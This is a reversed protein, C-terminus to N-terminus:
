LLSRSAEREQRSPERKFPTRIDSRSVRHVEESAERLKSKDVYATERTTTDIKTTYMNSMFHKYFISEKPLKEWFPTKDDILKDLMKVLNTLEKIEDRLPQVEKQIAKKSRLTDKYLKAIIITNRDIKERARDM